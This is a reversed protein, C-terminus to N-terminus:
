RKFTQLVSFKKTSHAVNYSGFLRKLKVPYDLHRNGVVRLEGGHRLAKQADLFMQWAIHDTVTTQQHFPPNCLILDVNDTKVNEMCNSVVFECQALQDPLNAAINAKASAVAMHSEDVFIVKCQPYKALVTLGIVGNGCGLDVVTEAELNPIAELLVRAGIDLQERAFVNAHNSITFQSNDLTWQTPYPSTHQKDGTPQCFLLRAKKKALSTTVAGLYKELLSFVSKAMHKVMGAAVITTTADVLPQLQILQHELLALSKPLKIVIVNAKEPMELSNLFTVKTAPIENRALNRQCARFAVYSDSLHQPQHEAFWCSLAGFDDNLILMNHRQSADVSEEIYNILYEDAADWARWSPHQFKQPYHMLQLCKDFLNLHSDINM